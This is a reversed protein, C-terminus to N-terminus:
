RSEEAEIRGHLRTFLGTAVFGVLVAFWLTCFRALIVVGTAQQQAAKLALAGAEQYRDVLLKGMSFETVGLGGPFIILLAGAVASFAYAFVAYLYPVSTQSGANAILWFGTCELGWGVVSVLTPMFIERPALLIRTSAFSGEIRPVLRWVWPLRKFLGAALNAFTRSGALVLAVACVGLTTWFVWAHEPMTRIGGIAMLILYGLLDTFREAVVIPATQHIPTGRVKKILWCKFVEGMKGPTVSMSLGSLYVLFSTKPELPTGLLALYRRWKVFRVLYNAFSLGCCAPVVWLPIRALADAVAGADAWVAMGVYVLMGFLVGALM